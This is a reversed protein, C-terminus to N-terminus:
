RNAVARLRGAVRQPLTPERGQHGFADVVPKADLPVAMVYGHLVTLHHGPLAERMSDLLVILTPWQSAIYPPPPSAAFYVADDIIVCDAPHGGAIASIEDLVPCQDDVGAPLGNDRSCWHGDLWYLTPVGDAAVARLQEGSNGHMLRVNPLDALNTKAADHLPESLEISVVEPFEQALRRTGRGEFTGTEVARQLGLRQRLESTLQIPLVGM